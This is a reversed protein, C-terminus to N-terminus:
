RTLSEEVSNSQHAPDNGHCAFCRDSLIPKVHINYDIQEPLDALQETISDPLNSGCSIFLLTMLCITLGFQASIKYKDSLKFM